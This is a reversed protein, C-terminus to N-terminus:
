GVLICNKMLINILYGDYAGLVTVTQGTALQNLKVAQRKDFECRVSWAGRRGGATLIIHHSDDADGVVIKGVVGTVRLLKGTFGADAAVKDAKYASKLEEVTVEVAEPVLESEVAPEPRAVPGPEAVSSPEPALEPRSKFDSEPELVLGPESELEVEFEPASVLESRLKFSPEPEVALRPESVLEPELRARPEPGLEPEPALESEFGLGLEPGLLVEPEAGLGSLREARFQRYTKPIKKYAESLLPYGCWPCAWDETRETHRGCNPCRRM